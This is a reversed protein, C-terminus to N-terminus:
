NENDDEAAAAEMAAMFEMMMPMMQPMLVQQLEDMNSYQSENLIQTLRDALPEAAKLATLMQKVQEETIPEGLEAIVWKGGIRQMPLAEGASAAMMATAEPPVPTTDGFAKGLAELSEPTFSLTISANDADQVEVKLVDLTRFQEALTDAIKDLEIPSGLKDGVTRLMTEVRGHWNQLADMADSNEALAKVAEPDFAELATSLEGKLLSQIFGILSDRVADAIAADGGDDVSEGGGTAVTSGIPPVSAPTYGSPDRLLSESAPAIARPTSASSGLPTNFRPPPDGSRECGIAALMAALALITLSRGFETM